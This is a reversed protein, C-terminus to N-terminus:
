VNSLVTHTTGRLSRAFIPYATNDSAAKDTVISLVKAGPRRSKEQALQYILEDDRVEGRHQARELVHRKLEHSFRIAPDNLFGNHKICIDCTNHDNVQREVMGLGSWQERWKRYFTAESVQLDTGVEQCYTDGFVDKIVQVDIVRKGHNPAPGSLSVLYTRIWQTAQAVRNLVPRFNERLM